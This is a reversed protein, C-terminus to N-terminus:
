FLACGTKRSLGGQFDSFHRIGCPIKRRVFLSSRLFVQPIALSLSLTLRLLSLTSPAESIESSTM